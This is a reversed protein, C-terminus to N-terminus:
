LICTSTFASFLSRLCMMSFLSHHGGAEWAQSMASSSLEQLWFALPDSMTKNGNNSSSSTNNNNNRPFNKNQVLKLIVSLDCLAYLTNM